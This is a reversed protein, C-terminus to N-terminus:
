KKPVESAQAKSGGPQSPENQKKVSMLASASTDKAKDKSISEVM